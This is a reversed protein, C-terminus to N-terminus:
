ADKRVMDTGSWVGVGVRECTVNYRILYQRGGKPHAGGLEVVEAEEISNPLRIWVREGVQFNPHKRAVAMKELEALQWKNLAVAARRTMNETSAYM